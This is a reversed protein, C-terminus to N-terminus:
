KLAALVNRLLINKTELRNLIMLVEEESKLNTFYDNEAMLREKQAKRNQSMM